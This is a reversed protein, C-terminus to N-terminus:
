GAETAPSLHPQSRASGSLVKIMDVGISKIVKYGLCGQPLCLSLMHSSRIVPV